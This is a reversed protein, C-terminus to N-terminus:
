TDSEETWIARTVRQAERWLDASDSLAALNIDVAADIVSLGAAFAANQAEFMAELVSDTGRAWAAALRRGSTEDDVARAARPRTAEGSVTELPNRDITTKRRPM